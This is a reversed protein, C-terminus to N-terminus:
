EVPNYQAVFGFRSPRQHKRSVRVFQRALLHSSHITLAVVFCFVGCWSVICYLVIRYYCAEVLAIPILFLKRYFGQSHHSPRVFSNFDHM